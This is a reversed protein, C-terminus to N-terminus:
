IRSSREETDNRLSGHYNGVSTELCGIRGQPDKAGSSPVSINDTFTPLFNGSSAAYYGLLACNEDVERVFGSIM